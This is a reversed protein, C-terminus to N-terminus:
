GDIGICVSRVVKYMGLLQRCEGGYVYHTCMFLDIEEGSGAICDYSYRDCGCVDLYM